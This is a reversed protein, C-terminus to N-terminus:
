SDGIPDLEIEFVIKGKAADKQVDFKAKNEEINPSNSHQHVPLLRVGKVYNLTM